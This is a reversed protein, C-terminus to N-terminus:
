IFNLLKLKDKDGFTCNEYQYCYGVKFLARKYRGKASKLYLEFAKKENKIVGYGYENEYQYFIGLEYMVKISGGESSKLYWEIAKNYDKKM